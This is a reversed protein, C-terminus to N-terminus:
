RHFNSLIVVRECMPDWFFLRMRLVVDRFVEHLISRYENFHFGGGNQVSMFESRYNHEHECTPRSKHGIPSKDIKKNNVSVRHVDRPDISLKLEFVVRRIGGM